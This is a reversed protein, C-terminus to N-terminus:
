LTVMGLLCVTLWLRASLVPFDKRMFSIPCAFGFGLWDISNIHVAPQLRGVSFRATSKGLLLGGAGAGTKLGAVGCHVNSSASSSTPRNYLVHWGIKGFM